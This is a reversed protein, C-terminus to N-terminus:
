LRMNTNQMAFQDTGISCLYYIIRRYRSTLSHSRLSEQQERHLDKSIGNLCASMTQWEAREMM